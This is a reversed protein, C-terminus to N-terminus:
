SIRLNRFYYDTGFLIGANIEENKQDPYFSETFEYIYGFIETKAIASKISEERQIPEFHKLSNKLEAKISDYYVVKNSEILEMRTPISICLVLFLGALAKLTNIMTAQNFNKFREHKIKNYAQWWVPSNNEKWEEFPCLKEYIPIIKNNPLEKSAIIHRINWVSKDQLNLAKGFIKEFDTINLNRKKRFKSIEKINDMSEDFVINRMTSDLTNGILALMNAYEFSFVSYHEHHIPIYKTIELFKKELSFYDQMIYKPLIFSDSPKM